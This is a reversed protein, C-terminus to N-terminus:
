LSLLGLERPTEECSLCELGKMMETARLEVRELTNLDTKYQPDWVQVCRELCEICAAAHVRGIVFSSLHWLILLLARLDKRCDEQPPLGAATGTISVWSTGPHSSAMTCERSFHMPLQAQESAEAYM